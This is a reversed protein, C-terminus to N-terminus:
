GTGTSRARAMGPVPGPRARALSLAPRCTRSTSGATPEMSHRTRGTHVMSRPASGARTGNYWAVTFNGSSGYLSSPQVEYAVSGGQNLGSGTLALTSGDITTYVGNVYVVSPLLNSAPWNGTETTDLSFDDGGGPQYTGQEYVYAPSGYNGNADQVLFVSGAPVNLFKVGCVGDPRVFTYTPTCFNGTGLFISQGAGGSSSYVELGAPTGLLEGNADQAAINTMNPNGGFSFQYNAPDYSGTTTYSGSVNVSDDPNITVAEASTPNTYLDSNQEAGTGSYSLSVGNWTVRPPGQLPRVGSPPLPTGEPPNPGYGGVCAAFVDGYQDITGSIDYINGNVDQTLPCGYGYCSAGDGPNNLSPSNYDSLNITYAGFLSGSSYDYNISCFSGNFDYSLSDQTIYWENGFDYVQPLIDIWPSNTPPYATPANITQEGGFYEYIPSSDIQFFDGAATPYTTFKFLATGDLRHLIYDPPTSPDGGNDSYIGTPAWGNTVLTVGPPVGLISTGDASVAAIHDVDFSGSSRNPTPDYSGSYTGFTGEAIYTDDSNILLENGTSFDYYVDAGDSASCLFNLSDGFATVMSPGYQPSGAANLPIGLDTQSTFVNTSPNGVAMLPSGLSVAQSPAARMPGPSAPRFSLTIM